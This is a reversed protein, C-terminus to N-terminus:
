VMLMLTDLFFMSTTQNFRGKNSLNELKLIRILNYALYIYTYNYIFIANYMFIAYLLNYAIKYKIYM